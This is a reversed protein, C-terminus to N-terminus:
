KEERGLKSIYVALEKIQKENLRDVQKSMVLMFGKKDFDREKFFHISNILNEAEQGALLKSKGFAHHRGDKGHCKACSKFLESPKTYEGEVAYLSSTFVLTILLIITAWLKFKM